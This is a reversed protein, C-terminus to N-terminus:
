HFDVLGGHLTLTNLWSPPIGTEYLVSLGAAINKLYPWSVDDGKQTYSGYGDVAPGVVWSGLGTQFTRPLKAGVLAQEVAAWGTKTNRAAISKAYVWPRFLDENTLNKLDLTKGTDWDLLPGARFSTPATTVNYETSWSYTNKTVTAHQQFLKLEGSGFPSVQMLGWSSGSDLRGGSVADHDFDSEAKIDAMIVRAADRTSLEPFYRASASMIAAVTEDLLAPTSLQSLDYAWKRILHLDRHVQSPGYDPTNSLLNINSCGSSIIYKHPTAATTTNTPIQTPTAAIQKANTSQQSKQGSTINNSPYAEAPNSLITESKSANAVVSTQNSLIMALQRAKRGTLGDFTEVFTDVKNGFERPLTVKGNVAIRQASPTQTSSAPAVTPFITNQQSVSTSDSNAISTSAIDSSSVRASTHKKTCKGPKTTSRPPSAASSSSNLPSTKAPATQSPVPASTTAGNKGFYLTYTALPLAAANASQLIFGSLAIAVLLCPLSANWTRTQTM